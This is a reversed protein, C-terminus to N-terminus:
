SSSTLFVNRGAHMYNPWLSSLAKAEVIRSKDRVEEMTLPLPKPPEYVVLQHEAKKEQRPTTSVSSGRSHTSHEAMMAVKTMTPVGERESERGSIPPLRQSAPPLSPAAEHTEWYYDSILDTLDPGDLLFALDSHKDLIRTAAASNAMALQHMKHLKKLFKRRQKEKAKLDIKLQIEEPDPPKKGLDMTFCHLPPMELKPFRKELDIAAQRSPSLSPSEIAQHIHSYRQTVAWTDHTTPRSSEKSEAIQSLSRTHERAPSQTASTVINQHFSSTAALGDPFHSFFVQPKRMELWFRDLDDQGRLKGEKLMKEQLGLILYVDSKPINKMYSDDHQLKHHEHRKKVHHNAEREKDEKLQQKKLQAENKLRIDKRQQTVKTDLKDRYEQYYYNRLKKLDELVQMHKEEKLKEKERDKEDDSYFTTSRKRKKEKQERAARAKARAQKREDLGYETLPTPLSPKHPSPRRKVKSLDVQVAPRNSKGRSHAKKPLQPKQGPSEANKNNEADPSLNEDDTKALEDESDAM